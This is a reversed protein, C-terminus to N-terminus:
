FTTWNDASSRGSRGAPLAATRTGNDTARAHSDTARVHSDTMGANSAAMRSRAALAPAHGPQAPEDQSSLRFVSVLRSLQAAEDELSNSAASSEHVMSANQQITTDMESVAAGIQAIGRSQEDSASAIEGMIDHVRKVSAMIDDMASGAESVLVTGTNVRTVSESILGEIEKAAQSSRQALNRVEGAVVAFGRGQEGARAAEVAANLALINTQFAISNIVTTIDSIKKSSGSIDDMTQIVKHIIEGGRNANGSAQESIQSAHRANDANNKVTATLQEMSAATEVIASSQQETRSSLDNNGAAIDSSAKAVSYVSHRIDAILQRLKETMSMMALTLQGLEDHREVVVSASLDGSAIREALKLNAIVPRTIQRTVSWAIFLGLVAAAIGSIITQFVSNNIIDNNRVGIKKLIGDIDSILKDGTARLASDTTRLQNVKDNYKVGSQNYREIRSGLEGVSNKAEAPLLGNLSDFSKKAQDYVGQMSKFAADSGEKQLLHVKDVLQAYFVTTQHYQRLLNIDNSSAYLVDSLAEKQDLAAIEKTVDNMGDVSNKVRDINKAYETFDQAVNSFDSQYTADWRLASAKENLQRAQELYKNLNNLNDNNLTYTFKIRAIRTLDIFNGMENMISSKVYLDQIMFFRVSSFASALVVLLLVLGFGGYMKHSIKLNRVYNGFVSM